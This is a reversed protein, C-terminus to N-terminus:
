GEGPTAPLREFCYYIATAACIVVVLIPSVQALLLCGTYVVTGVAFQPFARRVAAVDLGVALLAPHRLAYIWVSGFCLGIAVSNAAYATAAAQADAGGAPLFRGLLATPFPVVVIVMLLLLNIFQIPRDVARLRVFLGHHNMWMVGITLFSAVYAAYSPWLAGLEHWLGGPDLKAPVQLNFVLITIAVAFVGDSFAELRGKSM